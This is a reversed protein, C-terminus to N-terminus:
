SLPHVREHPCTVRENAIIREAQSDECLVGFFISQDNYLIKVVTKETAPEGERPDRQLFGSVAPVDNWFAESLDGDLTPAGDIRIAQAIKRKPGQAVAGPLMSHASWHLWLVTILVLSNIPWSRNM